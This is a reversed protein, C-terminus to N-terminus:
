TTKYKSLWTKIDEYNKLDMLTEYRKQESLADRSFRSTTVILSKNARHGQLVGFVRQVVDIGVPREYAWKKCEVFTLFETIPNRFYALMDRGGDRTSSTLEVDFGFDILIDAVLEEFSRSSLEYLKEPHRALYRKLEDYVNVIQLVGEDTFTPANYLSEDLKGLDVESSQIRQQREQIHQEMLDVQARYVPSYENSIHVGVEKARLILERLPLDFRRCLHRAMFSAERKM